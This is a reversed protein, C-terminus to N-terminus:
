LLTKIGSDTDLSCLISSLILSYPAIVPIPYPVLFQFIRLIGEGTGSQAGCIGRARVQFQVWAAATPLQHIVV